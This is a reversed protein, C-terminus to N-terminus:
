SKSVGPEDWGFETKRYREANDPGEGLDEITSAEGGVASWIKRWLTDKGLKSVASCAFIKARVALDSGERRLAERVINAFRELQSPVSNDAKTLVICLEYDSRKAQALLRWLERDAPMLECLGADMKRQLKTGFEQPGVLLHFVVKLSQRQVFYGPLHTIKM